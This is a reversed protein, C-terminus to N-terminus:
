SKLGLIKDFDKGLTKVERTDMQFVTTNKVGMRSLNAKLSRCRKLSLELAFINGKNEMLQALHTTKGGPAAAFDGVLEQKKPNLILPPYMSNKGQLFYYGNLYEPTAGIPILSKVVERGEEIEPINILEVGKNSLLEVTRSYSSRLSNLRITRPLKSEYFHLLKTTEEEGLIEIYREIMYSLYGYKEGISYVSTNSQIPKM